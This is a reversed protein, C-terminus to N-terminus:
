STQANRYPVVIVSCPCLANSNEGAFKDDCISHEYSLFISLGHYPAM